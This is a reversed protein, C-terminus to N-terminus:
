FNNKHIIELSKPYDPGRLPKGEKYAITNPHLRYFIKGDEYEDLLLRESLALSICDKIAKEPIHHTNKNTFFYKILAKKTIRKSVGKKNTKAFGPLDVMM